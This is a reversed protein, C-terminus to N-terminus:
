EDALREDDVDVGVIVYFKRKGWKIWFCDPDYFEKFLEPKNRRVESTSKVIGLEKLIKAINREDTFYTKETEETLETPIPLGLNDRKNSCTLEWWEVLPYGIVINEIYRPM